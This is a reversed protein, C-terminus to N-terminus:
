LQTKIYAILTTPLQDNYLDYYSKAGVPDEIENFMFVGNAGKLFDIGIYDSQIATAIATVASTLTPTLEFTEITGGLTYNSKFNSRGTRLVAGLVNDGLMWVRVDQANSEIFPQFIVRKHEFAKQQELLIAKTECLVVEKGGHGDVSKLVVPFTEIEELTQWTPITAIHLQQVFQQALLKDNALENTRANNFVRIGQQEFHQAVFSQRSRNWVFQINSSLSTLEDPFVLELQMNQQVAAKQLQEIFVKNIEADLREYFLYGRIM